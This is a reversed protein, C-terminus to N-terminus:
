SRVGSIRQDWRLCLRSLRHCPPQEKMGHSGGELGGMESTSVDNQQIHVFCTLPMSQRQVMARVAAVMELRM